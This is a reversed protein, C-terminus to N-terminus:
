SSTPSASPRRVSRLPTASSIWVASQWLTNRYSGTRSTTPFTCLPQFPVTCFIAGFAPLIGKFNAVIITVSGLVFLVVMFPVIKEAVVAIRQLGGLVVFGVLVMLVVGVILMYLNVSSDGSTYLVQSSLGKIDFASTFNIVIKNVQGMNGIGFSALMACIAFIVALVKGVVKMGPYSGLGDQLYYMAGGSWEGEHNKRRFYIGLINESYNTMMGFFAAIWMWFVAGPGGTMIAASVGAINGVGVTAALATCLAQFQSISARDNTHSIVKKDMLSGITKKWWHKFHTVQFFKTLVTMLIGTGILLIIGIKVWVFENIVNNIDTLRELFQDMFVRRSVVTLM